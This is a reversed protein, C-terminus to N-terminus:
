PSLRMIKEKTFQKMGLSPFVENSSTLKHEHRAHRLYGPFRM